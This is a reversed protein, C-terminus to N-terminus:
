NKPLELTFKTGKELESSVEISGHHAEVIHKVISLGLGTGGKERSRAKDVRYFREFIRGLHQEPIGIGTDEITIKVSKLEEIVSITILGGPSTYKIANGLLNYFAQPLLDPDGIVSIQRPPISTKLDLSADKIKSEMSYVIENLEKTIDLQKFVFTHEESELLSLKLLAEIIKQLRNAEKNIIKLFKELTVPNAMAGDLLTETFGKVATLPTQLEHSANAVFQTRIKEVEKVNTLDYFVGIISNVKSDESFPAITAHIYRYQPYNLTFHFNEKNGTRVVEKLKDDLAPVRLIELISRDIIESERENLMKLTATNALEVRGISNFVIVGSDLNNLILQLRKKSNLEAEIKSQITTAMRNITSGLEGIEDSSTMTTRESYKGESIKKALSNIEEIPNTLNQAMKISIIIGIIFLVISTILIIENLKSSVEQIETTPVAIRIVGVVDSDNHVPIALYVLTKELSISHRTENGIKGELAESVEPRDLHSEMARYDKDTDALVMGDKSIITIRSTTGKGITAMKNNLVKADKTILDQPDVVTSIITGQELLQGQILNLYFQEIYGQLIMTLPSIVVLLLLLYTIILKRRISNFM